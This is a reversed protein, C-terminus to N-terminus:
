KYYACIATATTGCASAGGAASAFGCAIGTSFSGLPISGVAAPITASAGVPTQFIVATGLTGAGSSNVCQIFCGTGAGNVISWGYLNGASAKISQSAGVTTICTTTLGTGTTTTTPITISYEGGTAADLQNAEARGATVATPNAKAIGPLVFPGNAAATSDNTVSQFWKVHTGDSGGIGFPNTGTIAAGDAVKANVYLVSNLDASPVGINGTSLSQTTGLTAGRTALVPVSPPNPGSGNASVLPLSSMAVGRLVANASGSTYANIRVRIHSVGGAMNPCYVAYMSGATPNVISTATAGAGAAFFCGQNSFNTGGDTSWDAMLTMLPASVSPFSVSASQYGAMPIVTATAASCATTLACNTGTLTATSGVSDPTYTPAAGSSGNTGALGSPPGTRVKVNVSGSFSGNGYVCLYTDALVPLTWAGAATITTVTAGGARPTLTLDGSFNETDTSSQVALAGASFTGRASIQVTGANPGLAFLLGTTGCTTTTTVTGAGDFIAAAPSAGAILLALVFILNRLRTM